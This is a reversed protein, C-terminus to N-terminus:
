MNAMINILPDRDPTCIQAPFTSNADTVPTLGPLPSGHSQREVTEITALRM